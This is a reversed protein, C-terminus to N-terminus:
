QKKGFLESTNRDFGSADASLCYVLSLLNLSVIYKNELFLIPKILHKNVMVINAKGIFQVVYM